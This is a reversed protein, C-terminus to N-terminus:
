EVRFRFVQREPGHTLGGEVLDLEIVWEGTGFFPTHAVLTIQGTVPDVSQPPLRTAVDGAPTVFTITWPGERPTRVRPQLLIACVPGTDAPRLVEVYDQEVPRPVISHPIADVPARLGEGPSPIVPNGGRVDPPPSGARVPGDPRSAEAVVAQPEEGDGGGCGVLVIALIASWPRRMM